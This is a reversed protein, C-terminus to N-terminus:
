IFDLMEENLGDRIVRWNSLYTNMDKVFEKNYKNRRNRMFNAIDTVKELTSPMEWAKTGDCRLEIKRKM